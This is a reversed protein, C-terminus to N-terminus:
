GVVLGTAVPPEPSTSFVSVVGGIKFLYYIFLGVMSKIVIIIVYGYILYYCDVACYEFKVDFSHFTLLVACSSYNEEIVLFLAMM